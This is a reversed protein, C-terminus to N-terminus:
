SETVKKAGVLTRLPDWSPMTYDMVIRFVDPPMGAGRPGGGLGIVFTMLNRVKLGEEDTDHTAATVRHRVETVRHRVEGKRLVKWLVVQPVPRLKTIKTRVYRLQAATDTEPFVLRCTNVLLLTAETRGMAAELAAITSHHNPHLRRLFAVPTEKMNWDPLIPNANAELLLRVIPTANAEVRHYGALSLASHNNRERMDATARVRPDELLRAVLAVRGFLANQMLPTYKVDNRKTPDAGRDLLANLLDVSRAAHTPFEGNGSRRKVGAGKEDILWAILPVSKFFAVAACLVTQGKGSQDRLNISGPNASLFEKVEAGTM